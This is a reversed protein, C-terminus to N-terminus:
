IRPARRQSRLLLIDKNSSDGFLHGPVYFGFLHLKAGVDVRWQGCDGSWIEPDAARIFEM